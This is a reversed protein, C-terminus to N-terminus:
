IQWSYVKLKLKVSSHTLSISYPLWYGGHKKYDNYLIQWQEGKSDTLTAQNVRNLEDALYQTTNPLGKLWNPDDLFPLNMGTLWYVLQQANKGTHTEGDLELTAQKATKELALVSTGVFSTLNLNDKQPTTSWFLNASQRKNPQIIALKGQAQWTHQQLLQRQWNEKVTANDFYQSACGSLFVLFIVFIMRLQM